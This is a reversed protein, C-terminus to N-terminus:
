SEECIWALRADLHRGYEMIEPTTVGRLQILSVVGCREFALHKIFYSADLDAPATVIIGSTGVDAQEPQLLSTKTFYAVINDFVKQSDQDNEYLLLGVFGQKDLEVNTLELEIFQTPEVIAFRYISPASGRVQGPAIKFPLDGEQVLFPALDLEKLDVPEPTNTPKPTSTAQPTSTPAPTNTAPVATDTSQSAITAAVATGIRDEESQTQGCGTILLVCLTLIIIKQSFFM